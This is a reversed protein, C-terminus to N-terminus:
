RIPGTKAIYAGMGMITFALLFAIALLAFILTRSNKDDILNDSHYWALFAISFMIMPELLGIHEKIEMLIGHVWPTPGANIEAKAEPYYTIYTPAALFICSLFAFFALGLTVLKLRKVGNRDHLAFIEAMAWPTGVILLIGIFGHSLSLIEGLAMKISRRKENM